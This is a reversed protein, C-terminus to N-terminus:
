FAKILNLGYLANVRIETLGDQYLSSTTSANLVVDAPNTETALQKAVMQMVSNSRYSLSGEGRAAEGFSPLYTVMGRINPVVSYCTRTKAECRAPLTKLRGM